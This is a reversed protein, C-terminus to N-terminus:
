KRLPVTEAAPDYNPKVKAATTESSDGDHDDVPLELGAPRHLDWWEHAAAETWPEDLQLADLAEMLVGADQPRDAPSKELCWMVLKELAEPVPQDTRRSVPVPPKSAHALIAQMHTKADFVPKGTLLWYAVCGVAYLDSRGDAEGDCQEPAMFAPTGLAMDQRTLNPEHAEASATHRKVLGFDLVKVFDVDAGYRCLFVNAPKIDRHILGARHAERISHCIQRLIFVVRSAPLPGHQDVLQQLDLGDLLEMVYYFSGGETQGFDYLEVTHPSRLNATAEAELEFRQRLALVDAGGSCEGEHGILKVAALRSLLRHRAQWVEGMGGIGLRRELHYAGLQRAKSLETSINHIVRGGLYALGACVAASVTVSIWVSAPQPPVKGLLVLIWLGFPVTAAAALSHLLVAAPAAPVLLPFFVILVGVLTFIPVDGSSSYIYWPVVISAALCMLVEYKLGMRLVQRDDFAASRTVWYVALSILACAAFTALHVIGPAKLDGFLTRAGILLLNVCVLAAMILAAYGLRRRARRLIDPPTTLLRRWTSSQSRGDALVVTLKRDM